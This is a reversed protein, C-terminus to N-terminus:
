ELVIIYVVFKVDELVKFVELWILCIIFEVVMRDKNRVCEFLFLKWFKKKIFVEVNDCLSWFLVFNSFEGDLNIFWNLWSCKFSKGIYVVDLLFVVLELELLLEKGDVMDSLCVFVKKNCEECDIVVVM